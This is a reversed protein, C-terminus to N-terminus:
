IIRNRGTNDLGKWFHAPIIESCLGTAVHHLRPPWCTQAANHLSRLNVRMDTSQARLMIRRAKSGTDPRGLPLMHHRLNNVSGTKDLGSHSKTIRM